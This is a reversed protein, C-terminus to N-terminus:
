AKKKVPITTCNRTEKTEEREDEGYINITGLFDTQSRFIEIHAGEGKHKSDLYYYKKEKKYIKSNGKKKCVNGTDSFISDISLITQEGQVNNTQNIYFYKNINAVFTENNGNYFFDLNIFKDKNTNSQDVLIINLKLGDTFGKGWKSSYDILVSRDYPNLSESSILNSQNIKIQFPNGIMIKCQPITPKQKDMFDIIKNLEVLLNIAESANSFNLSTFDCKYTLLNM